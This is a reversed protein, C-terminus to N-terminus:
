VNEGGLFSVSIPQSSVHMICSILSSSKSALQMCLFATIQTGRSNPLHKFSGALSVKLLCIQYLRM